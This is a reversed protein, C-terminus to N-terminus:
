DMRYLAKVAHRLLDRVRDPAHHPNALQGLTVLESYKDYRLTIEGDHRAWEVLLPQLRSNRRVIDLNAQLSRSTVPTILSTVERETAALANLSTSLTFTASGTAARGPSGRPHVLSPIGPQNSRTFHLFRDHFGATPELLWELVFMGQSVESPTAVNLLLRVRGHIMDFLAKVGEKTLDEQQSEHDDDPRLTQQKKVLKALSGSRQTQAVIRWTGVPKGIHAELTNIFHVTHQAHELAYPDVVLAERASWAFPGLQQALHDLKGCQVSIQSVAHQLIRTDLERGPAREDYAWEEPAGTATSDVLGLQPQKQELWDIVEDIVSIRRPSACERAIENLVTKCQKVAVRNADRPIFDRDEPWGNRDVLVRGFLQELVVPAVKSPLERALMAVAQALSDISLRYALVNSM